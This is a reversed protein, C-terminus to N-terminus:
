QIEEKNTLSQIIKQLDNFWMVWRSWHLYEPHSIKYFHADIEPITTEDILEKFGQYWERWEAESWRNPHPKEMHSKLDMM